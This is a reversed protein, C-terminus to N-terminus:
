NKLNSTRCIGQPFLVAAFPSEQLGRVALSLAFTSVFVSMASQIRASSFLRRTEGIERSSGVGIRASLYEFLEQFIAVWRM